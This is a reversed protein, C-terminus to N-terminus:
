SVDSRYPGLIPKKASREGDSDLDDNDYSEAAKKNAAKQEYLKKIAQVRTLGQSMLEDITALSTTVISM